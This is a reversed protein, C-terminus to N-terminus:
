WLFRYIEAVTLEGSESNRLALGILCSYSFLPKKFGNKTPFEGIPRRQSAPKPQKKLPPKKKDQRSSSSQTPINLDRSRLPQVEQRPYYEHYSVGSMEQQLHDEDVTTNAYYSSNHSDFLSDNFHHEVHNAPQL